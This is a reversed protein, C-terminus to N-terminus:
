EVRRDDSETCPRREVERELKGGDLVADVDTEVVVGPAGIIRLPAAAVPHIAKREGRLPGCRETEMILVAWMGKCGRGDKELACVQSMRTRPAPAAPSMAAMVAPWRPRRTRTRSWASRMPLFIRMEPPPRQLKVLRLQVASAKREAFGWKARDARARYVGCSKMASTSFCRM